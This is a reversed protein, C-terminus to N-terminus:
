GVWDLDRFMSALARLCIVRPGLSRERGQALLRNHGSALASTTTVIRASRAVGSSREYALALNVRSDVRTSQSYTQSPSQRAESSSHTLLNPQHRIIGGGTALTLANEDDLRLATKRHGRSAVWRHSLVQCSQTRVENLTHVVKNVIETRRSSSAVM